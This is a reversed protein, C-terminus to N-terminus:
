SDGIARVSRPLAVVGSGSVFLLDVGRPFLSRNAALREPMDLPLPEPAISEHIQIGPGALRIVPGLNLSDVQVIITASRDPYDDCGLDFRDFPLLRRSDTVIAFLCNGPDTVVPATTHFRLWDAAEVVDPTDIWVPTDHDFLTLAIAATGQLLPPPGETQTTLAVIRGPHALADMVSRFTSQAGIVPDTFGSMLM